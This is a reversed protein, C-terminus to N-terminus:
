PGRVARGGRGARTAQRSPVLSPNEGGPATALAREALERTPTPRPQPTLCHAHRARTAPKRLEAPGRSLTRRRKALLLIDVCCVAGVAGVACAVAAAVRM